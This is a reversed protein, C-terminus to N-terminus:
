QQTKIRPIVDNKLSVQRVLFALFALKSHKYIFFYENRHPATKKTLTKLELANSKVLFDLHGKQDSAWRRDTQRDHLRKELFGCM